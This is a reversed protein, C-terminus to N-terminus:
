TSFFVESLIIDDPSAIELRIGDEIMKCAVSPDLAEFIVKIYKVHLHGEVRVQLSATFNFAERAVFLARPSNSSIRENGLWAGHLRARSRYPDLLFQARTSLDLQKEGFQPSDVSCNLGLSIEEVSVLSEARSTALFVIQSALLASLYVSRISLM